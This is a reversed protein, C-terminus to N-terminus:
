DVEQQEQHFNDNPAFKEVVVIESEKKSQKKPKPKPPLKLPNKKSHKPAKPALSQKYAGVFAPETKKSTAAAPNLSRDRDTGQKM